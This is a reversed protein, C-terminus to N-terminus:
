QNTTPAPTPTAAPAISPAPPSTSSTATGSTNGLGLMSRLGSGIGSWTWAHSITYDVYGTAGVSTTSPQAVTVEGKQDGGVQTSIGVGPAPEVGVLVEPSPSSCAGSTCTAKGTDKVTVPGLKADGTGTFTCSDGSTCSAEGGISAGAEGAKLSLKADVGEANQPLEDNTTVSGEPTGAGVGVGVKYGIGDPGVTIKIQGGGGEHYSFGVTV